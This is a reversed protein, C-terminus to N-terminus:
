LVKTMKVILCEVATRDLTIPYMRSTDCLSMNLALVNFAIAKILM